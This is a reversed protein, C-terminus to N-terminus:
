LNKTDKDYYIARIRVDKLKSNAEFAHMKGNQYYSVGGYTAIWVKDEALFLDRIRSGALGDELTFNTFKGNKLLSIGENTGIWVEHNDGEIISNVVPNVLGSETTYSLFKTQKLKALGGSYTGVWINGEKDKDLSGTRNHPLNPILSQNQGELRVLGNYTGVWIINENKNQFIRHVIPFPNNKISFLPKPIFQKNELTFLGKTTGIWLKDNKDYLLAYVQQSALGNETTYHEILKGEKVGLLGNRRTGLWLLGNKDEAFSHVSIKPFGELDIIEVNQNQIKILHTRTGGWIVGQSDEFLSIVIDNHIRQDIIKKYKREKADYFIIGGGNTGLWINQNSDELISWFTYNSFAKEYKKDADIRTFNTGDFKYFGDFTGVWIYGDKGQIVSLIANSFDDTEANWADIQYQPAQYNNGLNSNSQAFIHACCYLIGILSLFCHSHVKKILLM